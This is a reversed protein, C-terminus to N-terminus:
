YSKNKKIKKKKFHVIIAFVIFAILFTWFLIAFIVNATGKVGIFKDDVVIMCILSLVLLSWKILNLIGLKDLNKFYDKVKNIFGM